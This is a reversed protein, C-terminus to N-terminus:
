FIIGYIIARRRSVLEDSADSNVYYIGTGGGGPNGTYYITSNNGDATVVTGTDITGLKMGERIAVYNGTLPQLILDTSTSNNSITADNVTIGQIRASTGYLEFVVNSTTSLTGVIRSVPNYYPDSIPTVANDQAKLTTGLVLLQKAIDTGAYLAEDVYRKNPIDDDDVVRTHYDTQGKVNIIANGSEAGLLNLTSTSAPNLRIAGTMVASNGSGVKFEFVGPFTNGLGDTWSGGTGSQNYIITAADAQSDNNGRAIVIGATGLTIGFEGSHTDPYTEGSNIVIINDKVSVNTASTVTETGKIQLNGNIIMTGTTALDVTMTGGPATKLIYDGPVKLVDTAM